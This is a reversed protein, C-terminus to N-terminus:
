IPIRQGPGGAPRARHESLGQRCGGTGNKLAPSKGLRFGQVATDVKYGLETRVYNNFVSTYPPVIAAGTPDYFANDLLGESRAGHLARGSPRRAIESRAAPEAHVAPTSACTPMTLWAGTSARTARTAADIIKQREPASLADGKALAVAYDTTAWHEAEQRTKNLDQMLDPALRKHYGAIM